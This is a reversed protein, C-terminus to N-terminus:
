SKWFYDRNRHTLIFCYHLFNSTFAAQGNSSSSTTWSSIQASITIAELDWTGHVSKGNYYVQSHSLGGYSFINTETLNPETLNKKKRKKRRVRGVAFQGVAFFWLARLNRLVSLLLNQLLLMFCQGMCALRLHKLLCVLCIFNDKIWMSTERVNTIDSM